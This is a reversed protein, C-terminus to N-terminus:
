EERNEVLYDIAYDIMEPTILSDPNDYVLKETIETIEEDTLKIDAQQAQNWVHWSYDSAQIM